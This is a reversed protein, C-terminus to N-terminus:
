GAPVVLSYWVGPDNSGCGATESGVTASEVTGDMPNDGFVNGLTLATAGSCDDNAPPPPGETTFSLESCGTASGGVNTPVVMWYYTTSFDLNTIDVTTTATLSGILSLSCSTTGWFIDYGTAPDGTVPEDWSITTIGGTLVVDTAGNSPSQNSACNPPNADAVLDVNDIYWNDGDDNAMVFAVYIPTGNYASLDVNYSSYVIGFDTEAQTDITAFDAHTTQSATSVRITYVSGYDSTFTQRQSFILINTAASPTFQPTM